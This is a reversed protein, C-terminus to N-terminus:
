AIRKPIGPDVLVTREWAASRGFSYQVSTIALGLSAKPEAPVAFAVCLSCCKMSGCDAVAKEQAPVKQNATKGHDTHSHHAAHSHEAHDAIHSHSAHSHVHDEAHLSRPAADHELRSPDHCARAMGGVSLATALLCVFIRQMLARM